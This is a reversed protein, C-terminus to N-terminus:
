IRHFSKEGEVDHQALSAKHGRLIALSLTLLPRPGALVEPLFPVDPQGSAQM